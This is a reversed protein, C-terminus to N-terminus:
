IFNGGVISGIGCHNQYVGTSLYCSQMREIEFVFFHIIVNDSMGDTSDFLWGIYLLPCEAHQCKPEEKKKENEDLIKDIFVM